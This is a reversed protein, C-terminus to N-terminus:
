EAAEPSCYTKQIIVPSLQILKRDSNPGTEPHPGGTPYMIHDKQWRDVRLSCDRVAYNCDVIAKVKIGPLQINCLKIGDFRGDWQTHTALIKGQRM